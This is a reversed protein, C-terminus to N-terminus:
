DLWWNLFPSPALAMAGACLLCALAYLGLYYLRPTWRGVLFCLIFALPWAFISILIFGIYYITTVHAHTVLAAPFGLEGIGSPWNGLGLHMHIALSYFLVLMLMAPFVAFVFGTRSQRAPRFRFGVFVAVVALIGALATFLTIPTHSTQMIAIDGSVTM